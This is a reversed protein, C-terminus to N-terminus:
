DVSIKNRECSVSVCCLTSCGGALEVTEVCNVRMIIYRLDFEFGCHYLYCLSLVVCGCNILLGSTVPSVNRM